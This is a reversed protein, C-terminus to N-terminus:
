KVSLLRFVTYLTVYDQSLNVIFIRSLVYIHLQILKSLELNYIIKMLFLLMRFYLVINSLFYVIHTYFFHCNSFRTLLYSFFSVFRHVVLKSFYCNVFLSINVRLLSFYLNVVFMFESHLDIIHFSRAKPQLCWFFSYVDFFELPFYNFLKCQCACGYLFCLSHFSNQWCENQKKEDLFRSFWLFYTLVSAQIFRSCDHFFWFYIIWLFWNSNYNVVFSSVSDYICFSKTWLFYFLKWDYLTCTYSKSSLSFLPFQFM